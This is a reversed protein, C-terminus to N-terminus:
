YRLNNKNMTLIYIAMIFYASDSLSRPDYGTEEKIKRLKYQLTNPHIFLVKATKSLSGEYIYYKELLDIEEDIDEHPYRPFIKKIYEIQLGLSIDELLIEFTLDSYLRINYQSSNKSSFLAKQAQIYSTHINDSKFSDIGICISFNFEAKVANVLEQAFERTYTDDYKPILCISQSITKSFIYDRKGKIIRRLMKNLQEFQEQIKETHIQTHTEGIEIILVRRAIQMNYGLYTGRKFIQPKKNLADNMLWEEIFRERIMINTNKKNKDFETLILIETMKKIVQGLREVEEKEGTIGIVGVIDHGLVIPLNIGKKSGALEDNDKIILFDLKNKIVKEAGEHFDGIRETDTSALIYGFEDILNVKQGIVDELEKVIQNAIRKSINM